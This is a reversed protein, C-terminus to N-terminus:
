QGAIALKLRNVDIDKYTVKHVSTKKFIDPLSMIKFDPDNIYQMLLHATTDSLISRCGAFGFDKELLDCIIQFSFYYPYEDETEWIECLSGLAAELFPNHAKSSIISSLMNVRFKEEWGFYYAYTNKWYEIHAEKPDRKYFFLEGSTFEDPLNGTLLITSDIWIGGYFVLLAVRILDSFATVSFTGGRKALIRAPIELYENISKDDLRIIMRDGAYKDISGLCIGVVEPVNEFGQGWYQWIIDKGILDPRTPRIGCASFSGGAAHGAVHPLIKRVAKSHSRVIMRSRLHSWM